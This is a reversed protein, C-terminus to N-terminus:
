MSRPRHVLRFAESIGALSHRERVEDPLSEVLPELTDLVVRVSNVLMWTKIAASGPYVPILEEAFANVDLTPRDEILQYDPHTLQRVGNFVTVKGAFLGHRGVRLDKERWAQNFFTLKLTGRGDTVTVELISGKKQRMRRSQVKAVEAMVTVEEDLPLHALDTLEGRRVYRRPYHRLLDEVTTLHLGKALPTATAGGVVHKLPTGLSAM